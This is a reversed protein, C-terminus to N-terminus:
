RRKLTTLFDKEEKRVRYSDRIKSIAKNHTFTNLKNEKIYKLTEQPYHTYLECILWAMAMNIYYKETQKEDLLVFIEKLYEEKIFHNLLIVFGIRSIFEEKSAILKKAEKFYKKPYKRVIKISNCFTDCLSWDDVRKIYQKFYLYFEEEEKILAIVLGQLMVEEYTIPTYNLYAKYDTKSIQKALNRLVPIKIGTIEYHTFIIKRNFEKTKEERITKLYERFELYTKETWHQPIM